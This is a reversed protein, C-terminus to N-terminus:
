RAEIVLCTVAQEPPRGGAHRALEGVLTDALTAATFGDHLHVLAALQGLGFAHGGPDVVREGARSLCVLADGAAMHLEVSALGELRIPRTTGDALRSLFLFDGSGQMQVSPHGPVLRLQVAQGDPDRIEVQSGAASQLYEAGEASGPPWARVAVQYRM